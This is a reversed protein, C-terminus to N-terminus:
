RRTLWRRTAWLRGANSTARSGDTKAPKPGSHEVTLKSIDNAIVQAAEGLQRGARMMNDRVAAENNETLSSDYTLALQSHLYRVQQNFLDVKGAISFVGRQFTMPCIRLENAKAHTFPLAYEKMHLSRGEVLRSRLLATRQASDLARIEAIADALKPSAKPGEYARVIPLVWDLFEDSTSLLHDSISYAALAMTFRMEDLESLVSDILEQRQYPRRLREVILPSLLGLLWGVVVFAVAELERTM